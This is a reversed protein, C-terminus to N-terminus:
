NELIRVPIRLKEFIAVMDEIKLIRVLIWLKEFIAVMDEIKGLNAFLM